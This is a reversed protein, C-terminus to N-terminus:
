LFVGYIPRGTSIASEIEASLRFSIDTNERGRIGGKLEEPIWSLHWDQLQQWRIKSYLRYLLSTLAIPRSDLPPEGTGKKLTAIPVELLNKPWTATM